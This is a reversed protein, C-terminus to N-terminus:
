AAPLLLVAEAGGQPRNAVSASGGHAKAIAAVLALGLGSGGGGQSGPAQSFREFARPLFDEPFGPGRDHVVLGIGEDQARARLVITGAGYRLANVVLNDLSQALRDADASVVAGGEVDVHVEIDRGAAAAAVRHRDAAEELLDQVDLPERRLALADQDARALVLLADALRSLRETDGVAGALAERLDDESGARLAVDLRTRLVSIPTRLEHSADSVIRRERELATHLRDLLENLTRALRDLEDRTGPEPLREDVDSAGITAARARMREVPRMAAGAVLYGAISALLLAAPLTIALLIALRHLSRERGHRSEGIAAVRAGGVRAGGDLAVGRVRAGDDDGARETITLLPSHAAARVQAPTLLRTGNALRSSALVRGDAAYVQSLAEGSLALIAAPSDSPAALAKLTRGRDVLEHDVRSDFDRAFALQILCGTAVLVIAIASAFAFTLRIRLPTARRPSRTSARPM